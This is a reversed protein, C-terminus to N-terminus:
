SKRVNLHLGCETQKMGMWRRDRGEKGSDGERFITCPECGISEIRDSSALPHRPLNHMKIYDMIMYDEWEILPHYRLVKGDDTKEWTKINKRFETQSKRIGSIWVDYNPLIENLPKVKNYFCCKGPDEVFLFEGKANRQEAKTIKSSLDIVNLHFQEALQTKFIITESFHFGTNIFFIPISPETESLIHLFPVGQTQFSSTAFFKKNGRKMEQIEKRLSNKTKKILEDFM